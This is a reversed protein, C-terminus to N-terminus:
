LEHLDEQATAPGEEDPPDYPAPLDWLDSLSPGDLDDSVDPIDEPQPDDWGAWGLGPEPDWYTFRITNDGAPARVAMFGISAKVVEAPQGNVTASWGKDYPVSFFVLNERPLEIRSTFGRNDIEFSYGATDRRDECDDFFDSKSLYKYDDEEM